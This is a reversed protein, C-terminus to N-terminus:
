QIVLISKHLLRLPKKLYIREGHKPSYFDSRKKLGSLKDLFIIPYDHM